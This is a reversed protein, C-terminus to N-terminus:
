VYRSNGKKITPLKSGNGRSDDGFGTNVKNAGTVGLGSSNFAKNVGVGAIARALAATRPDSINDVLAQGIMGNAGSKLAQKNNTIGGIGLNVMSRALPNVGAFAMATNALPSLNGQYAADALSYAGVVPALGPVLSLGLKAVDGYNSIALTTEPDAGLMSSLKELLTPERVVQNMSELLWGAEDEAESKSENDPDNQNPGDPDSGFHGGGMGHESDLDHDSQDVDYAM